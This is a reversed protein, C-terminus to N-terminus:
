QRWIAVFPVNLLRLCGGGLCPLPWVGVAVSPATWLRDLNVWGRRLLGVSIWGYVVLAVLGIAALMRKASCPPWTVPTTATTTRGAAVGIPGPPPIPMLGVGHGTVM